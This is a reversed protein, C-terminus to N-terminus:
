NEKNKDIGVSGMGHTLGFFLTQDEKTPNATVIGNTTKNDTLDVSGDIGEDYLIRSPTNIILLDDRSKGDGTIDYFSASVPFGGIILEYLVGGGLPSIRTQPDSRIRSYLRWSADEAQIEESLPASPIDSNRQLLNTIGTDNRDFGANSSLTTLITAVLALSALTYRM